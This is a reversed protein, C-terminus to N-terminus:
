VGSIRNIVEECLEHTKLADQKSIMPTTNTEAAQIFDAIMQEFGRKHLTPEWDSSGAKSVDRDQQIYLDAVNEVTRKETSSMVEVKEGTHGSDRNMIGIATNGGSILQVVVHYLTNDEVKARVVIDEVPYPFLYRLTDLVHIFDDFVFTRADAPQDKRNKQMLIMNPEEIEKLKQYVPAYRRNFGTMLILNNTEALDTLEKAQEAEYAIPKDVFVHIGRNLLKKVIEFHSETASHIFAGKIGSDMLAELSDHLKEFRYKKGIEKLKEQNRTFLHFEVNKIGSFVPLYAKQAIDGLGVVGLKM